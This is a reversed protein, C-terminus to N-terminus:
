FAALRGVSIIDLLSWEERALGLIRFEAPMRQLHRIAYNIGSVFAEAWNRTAAPLSDAIEPAARTLDLTRLSRDLRTAFPGLLEAMRGRAIHRMLEMQTWRLLVHIFGLTLALDQDSAAEVFPIQHEDWHVQVAHQLPLGDRPLMGLRAQVDQNGSRANVKRQSRHSRM